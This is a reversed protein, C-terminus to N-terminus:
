RCRNKKRTRIKRNHDDQLYLRGIRQDLLRAEKMHRNDQFEPLRLRRSGQPGTWALILIAKGKGTCTVTFHFTTGIILCLVMFDYPSTLINSWDNKVKAIHPPSHTTLKAGRDSCPPLRWCRHVESAQISHLVFLGNGRDPIACWNERRGTWPRIVTHTAIYRCSRLM